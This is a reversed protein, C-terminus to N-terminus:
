LSRADGLPDGSCGPAAGQARLWLVKNLNLAPVSFAPWRPYGGQRAPNRAAAQTLVQRSIVEDFVPPTLAPKEALRPDGNAGWKTGPFHRIGPL